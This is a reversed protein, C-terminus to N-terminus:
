IAPPWQFIYIALDLGGVGTGPYDAKALVGVVWLFKGIQICRPVIMGFNRIRLFVLRDSESDIAWGNKRTRLKNKLDNRKLGLGSVKSIYLEVWEFLFVITLFPLFCNLPAYLPTHLQYPYMIKNNRLMRMTRTYQKGRIWTFKLHLNMTVHM